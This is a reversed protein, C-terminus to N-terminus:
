IETFNVTSITSDRTWTTGFVGNAPLQVACAGDGCGPCRSRWRLPEGPSAGLDRSLM